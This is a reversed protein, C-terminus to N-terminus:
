SLKFYFHLIGDQPINNWTARTLLSTESSHLAERMLTVLIPSNPIVNAMVLLLCMSRLFQLYHLVHTCYLLM